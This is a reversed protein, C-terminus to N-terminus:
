TLRQQNGIQQNKLTLLEKEKALKEAGLDDQRAIAEELLKQLSAIQKKNKEM